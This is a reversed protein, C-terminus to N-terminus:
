RDSDEGDGDQWFPSWVGGGQIESEDESDDRAWRPSPHVTGDPDVYEIRVVKEPQGDEEPIKEALKIIKDVLQNLATARQNFTVSGNADKLEEALKLANDVLQKRLRQISDREAESQERKQKWTRLTEFPIGTQASTKRLNGNNADLAALARAKDDTSYRRSM